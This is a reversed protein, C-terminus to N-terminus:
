SITKRSNSMALRSAIHKMYRHKAVTSVCRKQQTNTSLIEIAGSMRCAINLSLRLAVTRM